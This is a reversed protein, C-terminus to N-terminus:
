WFFFFVGVVLCCFLFAYALEEVGDVLLEVTGVAEVGGVGQGGALVGV